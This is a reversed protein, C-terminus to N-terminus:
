IDAITKWLRRLDIWVYGCKKRNNQLNSYARNMNALGLHTPAALNLIRPQMAVACAADFHAGSTFVCGDM